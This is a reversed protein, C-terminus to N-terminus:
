RVSSISVHLDIGYVVSWIMRAHKRVEWVGISEREVFVRGILGQEVYVLQVTHRTQVRWYVQTIEVIAEGIRRIGSRM